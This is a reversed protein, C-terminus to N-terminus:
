RRRLARGIKGRRINPFPNTSVKVDEAQTGNGSNYLFAREENSLPYDYVRFDDVQGNFFSSDVEGGLLTGYIEFAADLATFSSWNVGSNGSYNLFGGTYVDTGSNNKWQIMNSSNPSSPSRAIIHYRVGSKLEYPTMECYVFAGTSTTTLQSALITGTSLDSGTPIGSGNDARISVTLDSPSGVKLLKLGLHTITHNQTSGVTGITFGQSNWNTGYLNVSNAGTLNKETLTSDPAVEELLAYVAIVANADAIGGGGFPNPFASVGPITDYGNGANADYDILTATTTNDVQAGLWYNTTSEIEYNLSPIVKWGSATGKTTESSFLLNGAGSLIASADYLAIEFNAEETPNDCYWGMEVIKYKGAPSTDKTVAAVNDITLQAVSSPNATPRSLVFGCNTGLELAM